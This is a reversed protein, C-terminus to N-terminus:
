FLTQQENKFGKFPLDCLTRFYNVNWLDRKWYIDRLDDVTFGKQEIVKKVTEQEVLSLTNYHMDRTKTKPSMGSITLKTESGDNREWYINGFMATMVWSTSDVSYWPYRKMLDLITLGFGHVKHTPYGNEDTLYKDWIIDLWKYLDPTSIPVMGGLTIHKYNELYYELYKPDEGYHFCPLVDVGLDELKKQNELTLEPDGIGDLVSAVEIIDQNQKVFDAYKDLPVYVGKSFMSFAGSDLFLKKGTKRILDLTKPKNGIYHYSELLYPFELWDEKEKETFETPTPDEYLFGRGSFTGAMHIKLYTEPHNM